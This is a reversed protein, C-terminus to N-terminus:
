TSLTPIGCDVMKYKLIKKKSEKQHSISIEQCKWWRMERGIDPEEKRRNELELILTNTTWNLEFGTVLMKGHCPAVVRIAGLVDCYQTM